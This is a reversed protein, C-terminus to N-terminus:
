NRQLRKRTKSVVRSIKKRDARHAREQVARLKVPVVIREQELPEGDNIQRLMKGIM